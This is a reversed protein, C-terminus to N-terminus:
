SKRLGFLGHKKKTNITAQSSSSVSEFSGASSQTRSLKSSDVSSDDAEKKKNGGIHFFGHHKKSQSTTKSMISSAPSNHEGIENLSTSSKSLMSHKKKKLLVEKEKEKEKARLKEDKKILKNIRKDIEKNSSIGAAKIDTKSHKFPTFGGVARFSTNSKSKELAPNTKQSGISILSSSSISPKLDTSVTQPRSLPALPLEAGPSGLKSGSSNTRLFPPAQESIPKEIANAIDVRSQNLTRNMMRVNAARLMLKLDTVISASEYILDIIYDSPIESDPSVLQEITLSSDKEKDNEEKHEAELANQFFDNYVTNSRDFVSKSRPGVTTSSRSQSNLFGLEIDNDSSDDSTMRRDSSDDTSDVNESVAEKTESSNPTPALKKEDNNDSELQRKKNDHHHSGDTNESIEETTSQRRSNGSHGSHHSRKRKALSVISSNKHINSTKKLLALDLYGDDVTDMFGEYEDLPFKFNLNTGGVSEVAAFFKKKLKNGERIVYAEKRGIVGFLVESILDYLLPVRFFKAIALNDLATPALLWKNGVQGTYLYECFAKLTVTSFPVYLKRPILSAEMKFKKGDLGEFDLLSNGFMGNQNEGAASPSTRLEPNSNTESNGFERGDRESSFCSPADSNTTSLSSFKMDRNLEVSSSSRIPPESKKSEANSSDSFNSLSHDISKSRNMNSNSSMRGPRLNPVPSSYLDTGGIANASGSSGQASISARPSAFPSDRPSKSLPINRLATLTHILSARPSSLDQSGKRSTSNKFSTPTSPVGPIQDSPLPLQPPIDQLQSMLLSNNSSFSSVSDKRPPPVPTHSPTIQHPDMANTSSSASSGSAVSKSSGHEQKDANFASMAQDTEFKDVASVYGRALLQLFYRGWREMLVILSVPIRDGNSSVLEFDSILDGYRDFANRGLTIAAPPFVSRINTFNTKPAAYHVYESFSIPSTKDSAHSMSSFRRPKSLPGEEDSDQSSGTISDDMEDSRLLSSSESSSNHETITDNTSRHHLHHGHYIRHGDAAHHHGGSMESSALINTIPLSVTIMVTFFRISSTTRSTLYNGILVVKHHSQWAFGGWFRHSGYDHNCFINLRSWKGTPKNYIFISIDFDGPLFGTIVINQGFLGGTPYRLNFPITHNSVSKENILPMNHGSAQAKRNPKLIKKRHVPLPKGSRINKGVKFSVLPNNAQDQSKDVTPTYVIISQESTTSQRYEHHVKGKEAVQQHHQHDVEETFTMIMSSAYDVNIDNDSNSVVNDLGLQHDREVDGTSVHLKLSSPSSGGVYKKDVLDFVVNDYLPVGNADKGGAIFLGFHDKKGVFVLSNITTMKHNFRPAPTSTNGEIYFDSGDSLLTWRNLELNFEWLDNCPVLFSSLDVALNSGEPIVLGGFLYMCNNVTCVQHFLRPRPRPSAERIGDFQVRTWVRDILSLYFLEGSLYKELSKHRSVSTTIKQHFTKYIEEITIDHLELGITLGGMTLVLSKYLTSSSGTRVNLNLRDDKETPPLQLMHCASSTPILTAM